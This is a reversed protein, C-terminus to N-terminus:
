RADPKRARAKPAKARKRALERIQQQTLVKKAAGGGGEDRRIEELMAALDYKRV